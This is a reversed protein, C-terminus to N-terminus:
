AKCEVAASAAGEKGKGKADAQAQAKDAHAFAFVSDAPFLTPFYIYESESLKACTWSYDRALLAALM